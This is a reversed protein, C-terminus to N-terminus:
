ANEIVNTGDTAYEMDLYECASQCQQETTIEGGTNACGATNFPMMMFDAQPPESPQEDLFMGEKSSCAFIPSCDLCHDMGPASYKGADCDLCDSGDSTSFTGPACQDCCADADVLPDCAGMACLFPSEGEAPVKQQSGAPCAMDACAGQAECCTDRDVIPDCIEGACLIDYPQARISYGDVTEMLTDCSAQKVCCTEFDFELSCWPGHCYTDKPNIKNTYGESCVESNGDGSLKPTILEAFGSPNSGGGNVLNGEENCEGDFKDLPGHWGMGTIVFEHLGARGGRRAVPLERHGGAHLREVADGAPRPGLRLRLAEERPVHRARLPRRLRPRVRQQHPPLRLPHPVDGRVGGAQRLLHRM